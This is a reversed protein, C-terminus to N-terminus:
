KNKLFKKVKKLDKKIGKAKQKLTKKMMGLSLFAFLKYIYYKLKNQRYFFASKLLNLTPKNFLLEEYFPTQRAYKWFFDAYPREPFTWPKINSAFHLIKMNKVAEAQRKLLNKDSRKESSNWTCNWCSDLFFIKGECEANLIDQDVYMPNGIVALKQLLREKFNEKLCNKINFVMVGAQLYDEPNKLQLINTCYDTFYKEHRYQRIGELDRAAAFLCNGMDIGALPSIDSVAVLDCDLYIVQEYSSFIEPIFFRFYTPLAFHASIHFQSLDVNKLYALIDFFEIAVNSAALSILRSKNWESIGGDLIYIKYRCDSRANQVISAITVGLYAAYNNDSSLVVPIIKSSM